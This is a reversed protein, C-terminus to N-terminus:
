SIFLRIQVISVGMIIPADSKESWVYGLDLGCSCVFSFVLLWSVHKWILADSLSLPSIISIYPFKSIHRWLVYVFHFTLFKGGFIPIIIFESFGNTFPSPRLTVHMDYGGSPWNESFLFKGQLIYTWTIKVTLYYIFSSKGM